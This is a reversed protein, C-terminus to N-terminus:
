KSFLIFNRNYSFGFSYIENKKFKFAGLNIGQFMIISENKMQKSLKKNGNTLGAKIIDEIYQRTKSDDRKLLPTQAILEEPLYYDFDDTKM